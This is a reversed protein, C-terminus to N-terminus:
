PCKQRVLFSYSRLKCKIGNWHTLADKALVELTLIACAKRTVAGPEAWAVLRCGREPNSCGLSCVKSPSCCWMVKCTEGHQDQCPQTGREKTSRYMRQLGSFWAACDLQAGWLTCTGQSFCNGTGQSCVGSWCYQAMVCGMAVARLLQRLVRSEKWHRRSETPHIVLTQQEPVHTADQIFGQIVFDSTCIALVVEIDSCPQYRASLVHM